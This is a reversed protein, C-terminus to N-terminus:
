QITVATNNSYLKPPHPFHLPPPRPQKPFLCPVSVGIGPFIVGGLFEGRASVIDFNITTGLDVVVCPGGYKRFGAVANVLRDAGVERPNDYLVKIGTDTSPTVFMPQRDFYREAM